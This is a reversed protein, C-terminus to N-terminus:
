LRNRFEHTGQSAAHSCCRFRRLPLGPRLRHQGRFRQCAKQEPRDLCLVARGGVPAAFCCLRDSGPGPARKGTWGNRSPINVPRDDPDPLFPQRTPITPTPEVPISQVIEERTVWQWCGPDDMPVCGRAFSKRSSGSAPFRCMRTAAFYLNCASRRRSQFLGMYKFDKSSEMGSLM